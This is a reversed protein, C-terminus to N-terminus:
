RQAAPLSVDLEAALESIIRWTAELVPVGNQLRREREAFAQEGPIRIEDVGPAKKSEKIRNIYTDAAASFAGSERFCAPDIAIFFHGMGDIEEGTYLGWLDPALASGTLPGSLLAVCLALGFGKHGALPSIAGERIAAADTTPLGDPGIGTGAPVPEGHYAAQRIRASSLASTAMDFVLPDQKGAPFGFALPNTSLMRETGGYPHVLPPGATFALGTMGARAMREAYFGLMFIDSSNTVGAACVGFDRARAVAEDVAMLAAPQGLGKHGDILIGAKHERSIEPRSDASVVGNRIYDLMFPMYDIGQLGKGRLDAEFHVLAAQEAIDDPCGVACLLQRMLSFLEEAPIILEPREPM